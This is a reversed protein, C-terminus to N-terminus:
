SPVSYYTLCASQNFTSKLKKSEKRHMEERESDWQSDEVWNWALFKGRNGKTARTPRKGKPDLFMGSVYAMRLHNDVSLPIKVPTATSIRPSFLHSVSKWQQAKAFPLNTLYLAKQAKRYETLSRASPLPLHIRPNLAAKNHSCAIGFYCRLSLRTSAKFCHKQPVLILVACASNGENGPTQPSSHSLPLFSRFFMPMQSSYGSVIRAKELSMRREVYAKAGLVGWHM